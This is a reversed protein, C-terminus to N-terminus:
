AAAGQFWRLDRKLVEKLRKEDVNDERQKVEENMEGEENGALKAEIKERYGDAQMRMFFAEETVYGDTLKEQPGSLAYITPFELVLRSRLSESLTAEPSLPILVPHPSPLRPAHLYFHIASSPSAITTTSPVEECPREQPSPSGSIGAASEGLSTSHFAPESPSTLHSPPDGPQPPAVSQSDSTNSDPLQPRVPAETSSSTQSPFSCLGEAVILRPLLTDESQTTPGESTAKDTSMTYPPTRKGGHHKRRKKPPGGHEHKPTPSEFQAAYAKAIPANELCSGFEARGDPHIWEVTWQIM